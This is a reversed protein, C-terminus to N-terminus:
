KSIRTNIMIPAQNFCQAALLAKMFYKEALPYYRGNLYEMAINNLQVCDTTDTKYALNFFYNASDLDNALMKVQGQMFYYGFNDGTSVSREHYYCSTLVFVTIFVLNMRAM